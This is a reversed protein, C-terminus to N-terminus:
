QFDSCSLFFGCTECMLKCRLERLESGCNPCFRAVDWPHAKPPINMEFESKEAM